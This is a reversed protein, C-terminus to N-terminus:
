DNDDYIYKMISASDDWSSGEPISIDVSDPGGAEYRLIQFTTIEGRNLNQTMGGGNSWPVQTQVEYRDGDYTGRISVEAKCNNASSRGTNKIPARYVMKTLNGRDTPLFRGKGTEEFDLVPKTFRKWLYQALFNASIGGIAGVFILEFISHTPSSTM